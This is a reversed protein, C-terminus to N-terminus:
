PDFIQFESFTTFYVECEKFLELDGSCLLPLSGEEARRGSDYIPAELYKGGNDRIAKAIENSTSSDMFTLEVYGKTGPECNKFGQLIGEDRYFLSKVVDPGSVCSFIIDSNRVVESPTLCLQAGAEVSKLCKEVSQNWISVVHRSNLLHKVIIQGLRGMGIFGIKKPAAKTNEEIFTNKVQLLELSPETNCEGPTAM